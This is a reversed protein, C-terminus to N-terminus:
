PHLLNDRFVGWLGNAIPSSIMGTLQNAVWEFPSFGLRSLALLAILVGFMIQREYKMIGFYYKPPLFVFAIRSGDFPPVPILNFTMFVFNIMAGYDFMIALWYVCNILFLSESTFTLYAYVALCVGFLAACIVGLILNAAPGAAASLAMGRRPNRFNRTNIPVPNAWGYGFVMMALFGIPDLHKAPNLTLRGMLYATNDGCKYAVWGHAAEHASLALMMMPLTLLLSVIITKPDGSSLLSLLM